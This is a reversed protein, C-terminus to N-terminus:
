RQDARLLMDAIDVLVLSLLWTAAVVLGFGCGLMLLLGSEFALGSLVLILSLVFSLLTLWGIAHRTRTYATEGRVAALHESRRRQPLSPEPDLGPILMNWQQRCVPCINGDDEVSVVIESRCNKCVTKTIM